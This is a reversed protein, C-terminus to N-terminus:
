GRRGVARERRSSEATAMAVRRGQELGPAPEAKGHGARAARRWMFSRRGAKGEGRAPRQRGMRRLLRGRRAQKSRIRGRMVTRQGLQRSAQTM